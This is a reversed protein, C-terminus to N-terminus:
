SNEHSYDKKTKWLSQQHQLVLMSGLM